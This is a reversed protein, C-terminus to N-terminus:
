CQSIDMVLKPRAQDQLNQRAFSPLFIDPETKKSTGLCFQQMEVQVGFQSIYSLNREEAFLHM